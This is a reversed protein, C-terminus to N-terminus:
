SSYAPLAIRNRFCKGILRNVPPYGCGRGEHYLEGMTLPKQLFGGFGTQLDRDREGTMLIIPIRKPNGNRILDRLEIGNMNGMQYDTIVLDVQHSKLWDIAEAGGKPLICCAGFMDATAERTCSLFERRVAVGFSRIGSVLILPIPCKCPRL